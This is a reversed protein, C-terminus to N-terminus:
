ASGAASGNPWRAPTTAELASALVDLLIEYPALRSAQYDFFHAVLCRAGEARAAQAFYRALQTKGIGAEGLVLM